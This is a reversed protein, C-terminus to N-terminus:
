VLLEAVLCHLEAEELVSLALIEANIVVLLTDLSTLCVLVLLGYEKICCIYLALISEDLSCLVSAVVYKKEVALEVTM